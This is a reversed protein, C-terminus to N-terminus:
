QNYSEDTRPLNAAQEDLSRRYQICGELFKSWEPVVPLPDTKEPLLGWLDPHHWCLDHSSTDRHQRIGNRLRKVQGNPRDGHLPSAEQERGNLRIKRFSL